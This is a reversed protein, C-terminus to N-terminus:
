LIKQKKFGFLPEHILEIMQPRLTYWAEGEDLVDDEKEPPPHGRKTWHLAALEIQAGSLKEAVGSIQLGENPEKSKGTITITAAVRADNAIALSHRTNTQSLWYINWDKDFVFIVDSVWPGNEDTTALSM